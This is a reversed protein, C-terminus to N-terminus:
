AARGLAQAARRSGAAETGSKDAAGGGQSGLGGTVPVSCIVSLKATQSQCQGAQM